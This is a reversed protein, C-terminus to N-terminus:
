SPVGLQIGIGGGSNNTLRKVLQDYHKELAMLDALDGRRFTRNGITYEQGRTAVADIAALVNDLHTQAQALTLGAM